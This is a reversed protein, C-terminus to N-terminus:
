GRPALTWIDQAEHRFVGPFGIGRTFGNDVLHESLTDQWDSAADRTGRLCLNLKGVFYGNGHESDEAPLEICIEPTAKAYVDARRVNNVM